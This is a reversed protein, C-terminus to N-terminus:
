GLCRGDGGAAGAEQAIATGRSRVSSRYRLGLPRTSGASPREGPPRPAPPAPAGKAPCVQVCFWAPPGASAGAAARSSRWSFSLPAFPRPALCFCCGCGSFHCSLAELSNRQALFLPNVGCLTNLSLVTQQIQPHRVDPTHNKSRTQFSAHLSIFKPTDLCCQHCLEGLSM